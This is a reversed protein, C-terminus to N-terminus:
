VDVVLLTSPSTSLNDVQGGSLRRIGAAHGSQRVSACCVVDPPHGGQVFDLAAGAEGFCVGDNPFVM